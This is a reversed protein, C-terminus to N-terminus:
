SRPPDLLSWSVSGLKWAPQRGLLLQVPDTASGPIRPGTGPGSLARQGPPQPQLACSQATLSRAPEARQCWRLGFSLLAELLPAPQFTRGSHVPSPPGPPKQSVSPGPPPFSEGLPEVSPWLTSIGISCLAPVGAPSSPPALTPTPAKKGGLTSAPM